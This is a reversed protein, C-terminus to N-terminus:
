PIAQSMWKSFERWATMSASPMPERSISRMSGCFLSGMASPQMPYTSSPVSSPDLPSEWPMPEPVPVVPLPKFVPAFPRDPPLPDAFPDTEAETADELVLEMVDVSELLLVDALEKGPVEEELVDTAGFLAELELVSVVALVLTPVPLALLEVAALEVFLLLLLEAVGLVVGLAVLGVLVLVFAAVVVLVLGVHVGECTM